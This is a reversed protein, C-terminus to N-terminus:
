KITILKRVSMWNPHYRHAAEWSKKDREIRDEVGDADEYYAFHYYNGMDYDAKFLEVVKIEIVAM